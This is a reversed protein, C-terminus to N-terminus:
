REVGKKKDQEEKLKVVKKITEKDLDEVVRKIQERYWESEYLNM